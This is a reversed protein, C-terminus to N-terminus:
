ATKELLWFRRTDARVRYTREYVARWGEPPAAPLPALTLFVCVGGPETHPAILELVQRWPMFARSVTLHAPPNAAMFVEARGQFVSVGPLICSALATKLFLARKERAEVLTYSGERWFMRLPIGPLGAGAGLDRCLPAAPLPLSRILGALHLSDVILTDFIDRWTKPGVLNMVRNWKELLRLYAALNELEERAPSFGLAGAAEQLAGPTCPPVSAAHAM